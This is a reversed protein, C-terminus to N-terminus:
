SVATFAVCFVSVRVEEQKIAEICAQLTAGTTVVDDILVVHDRGIERKLVFCAKMNSFRQLRNEHTQSVTHRSRRLVKRLLPLGTEISVGRAILEAQDYGRKFRKRWHVPVYTIAEFDHDLQLIMRGLEHGLEVALGKGKRYKVQHMIRSVANKRRFYYLAGTFEIDSVGWFVKSLENSMHDENRFRPLTYWCLDCAYRESYVLDTGCIVCYEPFILSSFAQLSRLM